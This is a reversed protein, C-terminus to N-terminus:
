DPLGLFHFKRDPRSAVFDQRDWNYVIMTSGEELFTSMRYYCGVGDPSGWCPNRGNIYVVAEKIGTKRMFAAAVPENHNGLTRWPAGAQAAAEQSIAGSKLPLGNHLVTEESWGSAIGYAKGTQKDILIAKMPHKGGYPPLRKAIETHSMKSFDIGTIEPLDVDKFIEKLDM